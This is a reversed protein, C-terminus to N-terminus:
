SSGRKKKSGKDKPGFFADYMEDFETRRERREEEAMTVSADTSAINTWSYHGQSSAPSFAPGALRDDYASRKAVDSLTEYAEAVEKFKGEADPDTNKDPHYRRALSRYARRIEDKTATRTVGLIEYYTRTAM